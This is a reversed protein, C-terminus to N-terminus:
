TQLERLLSDVYKLRALRDAAPALDGEGAEWTDFLTDLEALLDARMAQARALVEPDEGDSAAMRLDFMEELFDPDPTPGGKEPPRDAGTALYWARSVPDRLVRRADNITATWQLAMRREVARRGSFRDPHVVRSLTRWARDLDRRELRWTPKLGLVAFRDPRPPPPQLADCSACVPGGVAQHCKWCIM